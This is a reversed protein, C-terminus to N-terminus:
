NPNADAGAPAESPPLIELILLGNKTVGCKRWGAMIFCYGPNRSKVKRGDVYTYHREGPWREWALRDAERIMESAPIGTGENRFVACNVGEQHDMSIFKRWVFLARKCPTLLVYKEGPGVFLKMNRNRAMNFMDYQDRRKRYTYHRRFLALGDPDADKSEVWM